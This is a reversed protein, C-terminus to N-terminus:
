VGVYSVWGVVVMLVVTKWSGREGGGLGVALSSAELTLGSKEFIGEDELGIMVMTGIRWETPRSIGDDHARNRGKEGFDLQEEKGLMSEKAENHGKQWGLYWGVQYGLRYGQIPYHAAAFLMEMAYQDMARCRYVVNVMPDVYHNSGNNFWANASEYSCNTGMTPKFWGWYDDNFSWPVDKESLEFHEFYSHLWSWFRIFRHGDVTGYRIGDRMGQAHGDSYSGLPGNGM